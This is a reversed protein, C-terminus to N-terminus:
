QLDKPSLHRKGINRLLDFNRQLARRYFVTSAGNYAACVDNLNKVDMVEIIKSCTTLNKRASMAWLLSQFQNTGELAMFHRISIQSVGISVAGADRGLLILSLVYTYEVLRHSFPRFQMETATIAAALMQTKPSFRTDRRALSALQYLRRNKTMLLPDLREV